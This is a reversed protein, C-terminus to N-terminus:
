IFSKRTLSPSYLGSIIKGVMWAQVCLGPYSLELLQGPPHFSASVCSTPENLSLVAEGGPMDVQMVGVSRGTAWGVV